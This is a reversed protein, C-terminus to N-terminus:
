NEDFGSEQFDVNEVVSLIFKTIPIDPDYKAHCSAIMGCLSGVLVGDKLKNDADPCLSEITNIMIGLIELQSESM